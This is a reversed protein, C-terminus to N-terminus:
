VATTTVERWDTSGSVLMCIYLLDDTGDTNLYFDGRNSATCLPRDGDSQAQMGLTTGRVDGDTNLNGDGDIAFVEAGDGVGRLFDIGSGGSTLAHTLKVIASSSFSTSTAAVTLPSTSSLDSSLTSLGNVTLANGSTATFNCGGDPVTLGGSITAGGADVNLGGASVEMGGADVLLGGSHITTAGDGTVEFVTGDSNSLELLKFTNGNETTSSFKGITGTYSSVTSSVDLVTGTTTSDEVAVLSRVAADGAVDLDADVSLENLITLYNINADSATVLGDGRVSFMSNSSDDQFNVFNFNEPAGTNSVEVSLADGAYNTATAALTLVPDSAHTTTLTSVADTVTLGGTSISVSTASLSDATVSGVTTLSGTGDIELVQVNDGDTATVFNYDTNGAKYSKLELVDGTYSLSKSELSLVPDSSGSTIVELLSECAVGTFGDFCSCVGDSFDCIGSNGCYAYEYVDDNPNNNTVVCTGPNAGDTELRSTDCFFDSDTVDGDHYFLNNQKPLTPYAELTITYTAGGGSGAATACTAANINDLQDIVDADCDVSDQNGDFTVSYKGFHLTITGSLTDSSDDPQIDIEIERYTQGTTKYDDGKPCMRLSCDYGTYGDDCYCMQLVSSEWNTYTVGAHADALDAISKCYGHGSCDCATRQCANGEFGDFCSCEGTARNCVGANSCEASAHAVNDATAKDFWATGDPCTRQSCDASYDWDTFCTCTSDSGCTGHGSCIRAESDSPCTSLAHTSSWCVMLWVAASTAFVRCSIAM